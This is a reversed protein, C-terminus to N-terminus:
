QRDYNNPPSAIVFNQSMNNCVSKMENERFAANNNIGTNGIINNSSLSGSSNSRGNNPNNLPLTDREYNSVEKRVEDMIAYRMNSKIRPLICKWFAIASIALGVIGGIISILIVAWLPFGDKHFEDVYIGGEMMEIVSPHFLKRCEEQENKYGTCVARTVIEPDLPGSYRWNNIMLALPSWAKNLLEHTLLTDFNQQYCKQVQHINVTLNKMLNYSCLEGLTHDDTPGNHPCETPFAEMYKWWVESYFGSHPDNTDLYQTIQWLCLQRVSEEVVDKGTTKGGWDPDLSCFKGSEDTCMDKFNGPLSMVWYHPRFDLKTKLKMAYPAYAKLFNLSQTIAPSMWMDMEVSHDKPVDWALEVIVKTTDDKKKAKENKLYKLLHLTDYESILISPIKINDGWGDDAMIIKKIDDSKSMSGETDAIIIAKAGKSEAVQVKTVFHCGGRRVMVITALEEEEENDHNKNIEIDYDAANCGNTKYYLLEGTVRQGYYPTGFAATSGEIKTRNFIDALEPPQLVIIQADCVYVFFYLFM